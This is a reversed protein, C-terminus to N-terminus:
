SIYGDILDHFPDNIALMHFSNAHDLKGSLLVPKLLRLFHILEESRQRFTILRRFQCALRRHNGRIWVDPQPLHFLGSLLPNPLIMGYEM